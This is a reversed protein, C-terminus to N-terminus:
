EWLVSCILAEVEKQWFKGMDDLGLLEFLDVNNYDPERLCLHKKLPGSLCEEPVHLKYMFRVTLKAQSARNTSTETGVKEEINCNDYVVGTPWSACIERIEALCAEASCRLTRTVTSYSVMVGLRNLLSLCRKPIGYAVGCMSVMNQFHNLRENRSNLMIAMASSAMLVKNRVNIKVVPRTGMQVSDQDPIDVGSLTRVLEWTFPAREAYACTIKDFTFGRAMAPSLQSPPSFVRDDKVLEQVERSLIEEILM